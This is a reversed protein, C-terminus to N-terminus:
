RFACGSQLKRTCSITRIKIKIRFRVPLGHLSELRPVSHSFHFSKLELIPLSFSMHGKTMPLCSIPFQFELPSSRCARQQSNSSITIFVMNLSFSSRLVMQICGRELCQCIISKMMVVHRSSISMWLVRTM